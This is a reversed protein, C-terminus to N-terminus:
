RRLTGKRLKICLRRGVSVEIKSSGVRIKEFDWVGTTAGVTIM